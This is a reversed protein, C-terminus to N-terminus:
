KKYLVSIHDRTQRIPLRWWEGKLTLRAVAMFTLAITGLFIFAIGDDLALRKWLHAGGAEDVSTLYVYYISLYGVFLVPPMFFWAMWACLAGVIFGLTPKPDNMDQNYGAQSVTRDRHGSKHNLSNDIRHKLVAFQITKFKEL